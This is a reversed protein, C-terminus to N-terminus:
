PPALQFLRVRDPNSGPVQVPQLSPDRDLDALKESHMDVVLWVTKGESSPDRALSGLDDDPVWLYSIADRSYYTLKHEIYIPLLYVPDSQADAGHRAHALLHAVIPRMDSDKQSTSHYTVVSPLLALAGACLVGAVARSPLSTHSLGLATAAVLLPSCYPVYWWLELSGSRPLLSLALIGPLYAVCAFFVDQEDRKRVVAVLLCAGGTALVGMALLGQWSLLDPMPYDGFTLGKILLAAQDPIEGITVPRRWAQGRRVQAVAAVIWPAYAIAVGVHAVVWAKWVAFTRDPAATRAGVILFHLWIAVIAFATYYHLYLAVTVLIAYLVVASRRTGGSEIWRRYALCAALVAATAPAYMRTEQAQYLSLPALTCWLLVAYCVARPMAGEILRFLLYLAILSSLVSLGRLAALSDGFIWLWVKLLLYYLPPHVDDATWAVLHSVPSTALYWSTSEDLGLNKYSLRWVRLVLALALLLWLGIPGRGARLETWLEGARHRTITM